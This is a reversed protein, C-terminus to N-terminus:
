TAIFWLLVAIAALLANTLAHQISSGEELWNSLHASIFFGAVAAGIVWWAM